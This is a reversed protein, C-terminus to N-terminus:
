TASTIEDSKRSPFWYVVSKSNGHDSLPVLIGAKRLRVLASGVHTDTRLKEYQERTLHLMRIQYAFERALDPLKAIRTDWSYGDRLRAPDASNSMMATITSQIEGLREEIRAIQNPAGTEHDHETEALTARIENTLGAAIEKASARSSDGNIERPSAMNGLMREWGAKVLGSTEESIREVESEIKQLSKIMQDTVRELRISGLVSFTIAVVSLVIGVISSILGAWLAIHEVENM